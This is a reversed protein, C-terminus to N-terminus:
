MDYTQPGVILQRRLEQKDQGDAQDVKAVHDEDKRVGVIEFQRTANNRSSRVLQRRGM